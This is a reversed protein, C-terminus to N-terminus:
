LKLTWASKFDRSKQQMQVIQARAEERTGFGPIIVRRMQAFMRVEAHIGQQSLSEVYAIANKQSVASALVIAFEETSKPSTTEPQIDAIEQEEVMEEEVIEEKITEASKTHISASEECLGMQKDSSGLLHAPMFFKIEANQEQGFNTHAAPQSFSFFVCIAAVIAAAYNFINRNIRITINRGETNVSTLRVTPQKQENVFREELKRQSVADLGYLWSTAVGAQCPLFIIEENEGERVFTGVSGLEATGNENLEQKLNEVYEACQLFANTDTTKLVSALTTVFLEGECKEDYIFSVSRYPPLFLDEEQCWKSPEYNTQFTGLQPVNVCDYKLLLYEIHRSIDIM